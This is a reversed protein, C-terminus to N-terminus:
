AQGSTPTSPSAASAWSVATDFANNKADKETEHADGLFYWGRTLRAATERDTPNANYAAEYKVLAAKLSETDGRKAWLADAESKATEFTSAKGFGPRGYSGKQKQRM